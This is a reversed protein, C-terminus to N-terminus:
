AEARKSVYFLNNERDIAFTYLLPKRSRKDLFVHSRQKDYDEIAEDENPQDSGLLNEWANEFKFTPVYVRYKELIIMNDDMKLSKILGVKIGDVFMEKKQADIAIQPLKDVLVGPQPLLDLPDVGENFTM